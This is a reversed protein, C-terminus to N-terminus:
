LFGGQRILRTAQFISRAKQGGHPATRITLLIVRGCVRSMKAERTCKEQKKKGALEVGSVRWRWRGIARVRPKKLPRPNVNLNTTAIESVKPEQKRKGKKKWSSGARKGRKGFRNTVNRKSPRGKKWKGEKKLYREKGIIPRPENKMGGVLSAYSHPAGTVTM